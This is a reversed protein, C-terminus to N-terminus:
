WVVIYIYVICIDICSLAESRQTRAHRQAPLVVRQGGALHGDYLSDIAVLLLRGEDGGGGGGRGGGSGLGDEDLLHPVSYIHPHIYLTM